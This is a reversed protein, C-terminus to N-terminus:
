NQLYGRATSIVEQWFRNHLDAVQLMSQSADLLTRNKREVVGNQQPNYSTTFEHSIGHSKCFTKWKTSCYKGGNNTIITKIQSQCQNEVLAKYTKFANFAGVNSKM